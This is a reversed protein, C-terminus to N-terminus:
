QRRGLLRGLLSRGKQQEENNSQGPCSLADAPLGPVLHIVRAANGQGGPQVIAAVAAEEGRTWALAWLQKSGARALEAPVTPELGVLADLDALDLPSATLRGGRAVVPMGVRLRGAEAAERFAVCPDAESADPAAWAADQLVCSQVDGRVGIPHWARWRLMGRLPRCLWPSAVDLGEPPEILVWDSAVGYRLLVCSWLETGDVHVRALPVVRERILSRPREPTIAQWDGPPAQEIQARVLRCARAAIAVAQLAQGPDRAETVANLRAALDTFGAGALVAIEQALDVLDGAANRWGGALLRDLLAEVKLLRDAIDSLDMAPENM